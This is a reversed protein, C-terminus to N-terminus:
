TDPLIPNTQFTGKEELQIVKRTFKSYM